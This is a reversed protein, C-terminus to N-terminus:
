EKISNLLMQVLDAELLTKEAFRSIREFTAANTPSQQAWEIVYDSFLSGEFSGLEDPNYNFTIENNVPNLIIDSNDKLKWTISRTKMIIEKRM